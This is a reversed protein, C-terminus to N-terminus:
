FLAPITITFETGQGLSSTVEITGCHKEVIIQHAISLGLGTGKGVDKTTFLDEFIKQQIDETMGVGNDQIKIVVWQQDASLQTTIVICNPQSKIESFSKGKNTEDLADIANALINMFVQNLQGPFCLVAPVDSYNKIVQINPRHENAKLRYKLIMLASDIGEHLDASIKHETDARSFTRLSTSISSIRATASEMSQLLKPLDECLFDLDIDEANEQIAEAVNPHYNQYLVLHALLDEVHEQANKISGNLFGIPNNIEHAVGAVLNGLASMKENQILQTQTEKLEKLSQELNQITQHLLFQQREQNKELYLRQKESRYLKKQLIRNSKELQEVQERLKLIDPM